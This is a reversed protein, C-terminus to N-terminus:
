LHRRSATAASPHGQGPPRRPQAPPDASPQPLSWEVPKNSAQERTAGVREALSFMASIISQPLHITQAFLENEVRMSLLVNVKEGESGTLCPLTMVLTQDRRTGEPGRHKSAFRVQIGEDIVWGPKVEFGTVWLFSIKRLNRMDAFLDIFFSSERLKAKVGDDIMATLVGVEPASLLFANGTFEHTTSIGKLPLSPGFTRQLPSPHIRLDEPIFRSFVEVLQAITGANVGIVPLHNDDIYKLAISPSPVSHFPLRLEIGSREQRENAPFLKVVLVPVLGKNKVKAETYQVKITATGSQLSDKLVQSWRLADQNRQASSNEIPRLSNWVSEIFGLVEPDRLM